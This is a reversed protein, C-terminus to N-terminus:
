THSSFFRRLTVFADICSMEFFQKLTPYLIFTRSGLILVDAHICYAPVPMPEAVCRCSLLEHSGQLDSIMLM